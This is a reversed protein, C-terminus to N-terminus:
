YAKYVKRIEYGSSNQFDYRKLAEKIYMKATFKWKRTAVLRTNGSFTTIWIQYCKKM